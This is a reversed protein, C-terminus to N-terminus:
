RPLRMHEDIRELLRRRGMWLGVFFMALATPGQGTIAFSLTEGYTRVREEIVQAQTGRYAAQSRVAEPELEAASSSDGGQSLVVSIFATAAVSRLVLAAASGLLM